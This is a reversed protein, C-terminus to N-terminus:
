DEDSMAFSDDIVNGGVNTYVGDDSSLLPSDNTEVSMSSEIEENFDPEIDPPIVSDVNIYQGDEIVLDQEDSQDSDISDDDETFVSETSANM